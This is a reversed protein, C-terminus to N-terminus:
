KEFVGLFEEIKKVATEEKEKAQKLLPIKDEAKMEKNSIKFFLGSIEKYLARLERAIRSTEDMHKDSIEEFYEGAMKRCEAWVMANWWTGHEHAKEDQLAKIWNDYAGTGIAYKEFSYNDPNKFLDVAYRLSEKIITAEDKPQVKRFALFTTHIENGFEKWTGYTLTPPTVECVPNWPQALLFKTDDYGLVIQNEMNQALGPIGADLHERLKLEVKNRDEITNNKDFFGLDIIEVGLNKTLEFFKNYKWCYPGSPCVVEHINILFAHGSGGYAMGNTIKIDYYDFVGKLVGMLSANFPPMNINKLKMHVEEGGKVSHLQIV